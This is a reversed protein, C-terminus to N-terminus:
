AQNTLCLCEIHLSSLLFIGKIIFLAVNLFALKCKDQSLHHDYVLLSLLWCCVYTCVNIM